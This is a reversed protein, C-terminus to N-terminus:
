LVRGLHVRDRTPGCATTSFSVGCICVTSVLSGGVRHRIRSGAEQLDRRAIIDLELAKEKFNATHTRAQRDQPKNKLKYNRLKLVLKGGVALSPRTRYTWYFECMGSPLPRRRLEVSGNTSLSIADVEGEAIQARGATFAEAENQALNEELPEVM